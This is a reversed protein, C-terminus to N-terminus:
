SILESEWFWQYLTVGGAIAVGERAKGGNKRLAEGQFAQL